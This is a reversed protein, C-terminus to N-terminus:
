SRPPTRCSLPEIVWTLTTRRAGARYRCVAARVRDRRRVGARWLLRRRERRDCCVAPRRPGPLDDAHQAVPTPLMDRWLEGWQSRRVRPLQWRGHRRHFRSQRSDHNSRGFQAHREQHGKSRAGPVRRADRAVRHRGHERQRGAVRGVAAPTCSWEKATDWFRIFPGPVKSYSLPGTAPPAAAGTAPPAPSAGAAGGRRGTSISCAGSAPTTSTRSSSVSRDPNFAAGWWNSGGQAGSLGARESRSEVPYVAGHRHARKHGLPEQCFAQHEPTVTSLDSKKFSNSSLPPPKVPFPQTPSTWEGPVTTQPVPREEMGFIPEGTERNFIYM